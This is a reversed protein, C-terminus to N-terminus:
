FRVSIFITTNTGLDFDNEMNFNTPKMYTNVLNIKQSIPTTIYRKYVSVKIELGLGNRYERTSYYYNIINIFM